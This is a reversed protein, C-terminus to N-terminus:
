SSLTTQIGTALSLLAGVFAVGIVVKRVTEHPVRRQVRGGIWIGLVISVLSAAWAWWPLAPMQNGTFAWRSAVATISMLIWLPQLTAAFSIVNWRSLVSYVAMAPGGVGALVAGAGSGMGSLVKTVPGDVTSSIRSVILSTSLGLIVLSAVVIYLPGVPSLHAIWAAGPMVILASPALWFFRRWDIHKWVVPLMILPAITALVNTLMVGGHPGVMVVFFPAAVMAFGLGTIRQLGAALLVLGIIALAM